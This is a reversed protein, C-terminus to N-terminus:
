KLIKMYNKQVKGYLCKHNLCLRLYEVECNDIIIYYSKTFFNFKTNLDHRFSFYFYLSIFIINIEANLTSFKMVIQYPIDKPSNKSVNLLYTTKYFIENCFYNQGM